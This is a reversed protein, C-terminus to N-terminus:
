ARTEEAAKDCGALMDQLRAAREHLADRLDDLMLGALADNAKEMLEATTMESPEREATM